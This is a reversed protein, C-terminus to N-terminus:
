QYSIDKIVFKEHTDRYPHDISFVQRYAGAGLFKVKMSLLELEHFSNCNQLNIRHESIRRCRGHHSVYRGREYDDDFNYYGDLDDDRSKDPLRYSNGLLSFDREIQRRASEEQFFAITLNGFEDVDLSDSSEDDSDPLPEDPFLIIQNPSAFEKTFAISKPRSFFETTLFRGQNSIPIGQMKLYLLFTSFLFMLLTVFLLPPPSRSFNRLYQWFKRTAARRRIQALTQLKQRAKRKRQKGNGKGNLREKRNTASEIDDTLASSTPKGRARLNREKM